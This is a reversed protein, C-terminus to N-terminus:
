LRASAPQWFQKERLVLLVFKLLSIQRKIRWPERLLRFMWEFGIKQVWLPARKVRQSIFDFAGGVGIAVRVPLKDLNDCLYFEQKPSGFAVFLIDILAYNVVHSQRGAQEKLWEEQAFVVKLGPYKKQLCKATEEAVGRGGGLFGVTIPKKSVEKCLNEMLDVGTIRGTLRKGLFKGALIVGIGDPLALKAENLVKKYGPNNNAIVLIEPNPTVIYYRESGNELNKVIYELVKKKSTDTIGVGLITKKKFM